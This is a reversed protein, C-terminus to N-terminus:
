KFFAAMAAHEAKFDALLAAIKEEPIGLAAIPEADESLQKSAIISEGTSNVYRDATNLIASLPIIGGAQFAPPHHHDRVALQVEQPM